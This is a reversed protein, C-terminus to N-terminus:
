RMGAGEMKAYLDETALWTWLMEQRALPPSQKWADRDLCAGAVDGTTIGALGQLFGAAEDLDDIQAARDADADKIKTIDIM